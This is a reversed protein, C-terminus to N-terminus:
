SGTELSIESCLRGAIQSAPLKLLREYALNVELYKWDVPQGNEDQVIEGYVFGDPMNEFLLRYRAESEELALQSAKREAVDVLTGEIGDPSVESLRANLCIWTTSGDARRVEAELEQVARGERLDQQLRGWTGPDVFLAPMGASSAVLSEPNAYGLISAFTPNVITFTGSSDVQYIGEAANEFLARYRIEAVRLAEEAEKRQSIDRAFICVYERGDLSLYGRLVEVPVMTGDSNRLSSECTTSGSTRLKDWLEQTLSQDIGADIEFLTMRLLEERSYGLKGCAADNAYVIYGGQIVWLIMDSSGDVAFRSVRLEEERRRREAVERALEQKQRYFDRVLAAVEGVPSPDRDLAQLPELDDHEVASCVNRLSRRMTWSALWGYLALTMLPLIILGYRLTKGTWEAAAYHSPGSYHLEAEPGGYIDRLPVSFTVEHFHSQENSTGPAALVVSGGGCAQAMSELQVSDLTRVFLLLPGDQNRGSPSAWFEATKGALAGFFHLRPPQKLREPDTSPLVDRSDVLSAQNTWLSFPRGEGRVVLLDTFGSLEMQSRLLRPFEAEPNELHSVLASDRAIAVALTGMSVADRELARALLRQRNEVERALLSLRYEREIYVWGSFCAAALGGLLLAFLLIRNRILKM